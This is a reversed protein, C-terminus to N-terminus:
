LAVCSAFAYSPIIGITGPIVVTTLSTCSRFAELGLSVVSEPIEISLLSDCQAFIQRSLVTLGPSDGFEVSTLSGCSEFAAREILTVSNAVFVSQLANYGYFARATVKDVGTLDLFFVPVDDIYLTAGVSACLPNSKSM